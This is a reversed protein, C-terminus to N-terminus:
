RQPASQGDAPHIDWEAAVRAAEHRSRVALKALVASVHHDVTHESIHLRAAIEANRLDAALLALVELERATLGAPNAATARRPRRPLRRVGLERLRRAVADAAPRAGLRALEDLARRLPEEQDAEALALATEYPCGLERWREAARAWEGALQLAYPEAVDPPVEGGLGARRRWGALEGALLGGWDRALEANLGALAAQLEVASRAARLADDEHVRPIGFVGVVADGIYKAVTGGHRELVTRARQYYRGLVRQLLEPDLREGLATSGALDCFVVTVTKRVERAAAHDGLLSGCNGCFRFGDPNRQGCATV